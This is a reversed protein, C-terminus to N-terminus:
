QWVAFVQQRHMCLMRAACMICSEAEHSATTVVATPAPPHAAAPACRGAAVAAAADCAAPLLPAHAM